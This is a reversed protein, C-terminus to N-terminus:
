AGPTKMFKAIMVRFSDAALSAAITGFLCVPLEFLSPTAGAQFFKIVM